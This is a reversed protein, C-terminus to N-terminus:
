EHAVKSLRTVLLDAMQEHAPEEGRILVREDKRRDRTFWEPSPIWSFFDGPKLHKYKISEIRMM